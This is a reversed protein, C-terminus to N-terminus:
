NAYEAIFKVRVWRIETESYTGSFHQAAAAWDESHDKRLVAIIDDIDEQELFLDRTLHYNINVKTGGLVIKEIESLLEEDSIGLTEAMDAMDIKADINRIIQIKLGPKILSKVQLDKPREINNETVYREILEIFPAGFKDAKGQGVGVIQMLEEKTIPYTNCMELLAPDQFILTPPLDKQRAIERRLDKLMDFLVPDITQMRENIAGLEEDSVSYDNERFFEIDHPKKLFQLGKKTLSTAGQKEINKQLFQHLLAQRIVANWTSEDKSLEVGSGFIDLEHHDYNKIKAIVKGLLFNVLDKPNYVEKTAQIVELLLSLYDKGQFKEKPHKCNDCLGCNENEYTEGFYSM